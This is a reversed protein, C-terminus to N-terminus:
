WRCDTKQMRCAQTGMERLIWLIRPVTRRPRHNRIRARTAKREKARAKVMRATAREKPNARGTKGSSFSSVARTQDVDMPVPGTSQPQVASSGSIGDYRRLTEANERLWERMVSYSARVNFPAQKLINQYSEPSHELVRQRWSVM